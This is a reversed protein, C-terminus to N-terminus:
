LRLCIGSALGPAGREQLSTKDQANSPFHQMPQWARVAQSHKISVRQMRQVGAVKQVQSMRRSWPANAAGTHPMSSCNRLAGADPAMTSHAVAAKGLPQVYTAATWERIRKEYLASVAALRQLIKAKLENFNAHVMGPPAPLVPSCYCEWEDIGCCWHLVHVAGIPCCWHTPEPKEMVATAVPSPPPPPLSDRPPSPPPSPPQLAAFIAHM